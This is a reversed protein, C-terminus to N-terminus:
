NKKHDPRLIITTGTIFLRRLILQGGSLALVLIGNNLKKYVNKPSFEGIVIDKPFQGKDNRSM